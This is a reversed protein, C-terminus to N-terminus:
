GVVRLKRNPRLAKYIRYLIKNVSLPTLFFILAVWCEPFMWFYKIMRLRKGKPTDWGGVWAVLVGRWTQGFSKKITRRVALSSFVTTYERVIRSFNVGFVEFADNKIVGPNKVVVAKIEDVSAPHCIVVPGHVYYHRGPQSIVYLILYLNVFFSGIYKRAREIGPLALERKFVTSSVFGLATGGLELIKDRSSFFRSSQLNIALDKTGVLQYNAWVFTLDHNNRIADLVQGVGGPTVDDDGLWWVFKGHAEETLFIVTKDIGEKNGHYYRIPLVNSFSEVLLGTENNTSDDRIIIEIEDTVQPALSNLLREIDPAQNYSLICISLLVHNQQHQSISSDGYNQKIKM